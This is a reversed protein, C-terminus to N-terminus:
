LEVEFSALAGPYNFGAYFLKISISKLIDLEIGTNFGKSEYEGLVKLWSYGVKFSGFLGQLRYGDPPTKSLVKSLRTGYGINLCLHITNNIPIRKGLILATCNYKRTGAFDQLGFAIQPWIDREKCLVIKLNMNRDTMFRYPLSTDNNQLNNVGVLRIGAEIRPHLGFNLAAAWQGIHTIDGERRAFQDNHASVTLAMKGDGVTFAEPCYLTGSVGYINQAESAKALVLFVVLFMYKM